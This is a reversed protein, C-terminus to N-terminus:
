KIKILFNLREAKEAPHDEATKILLIDWPCIIEMRGPGEGRGPRAPASM